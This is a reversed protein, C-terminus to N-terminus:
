SPLRWRRPDILDVDDSALSRTDVEAPLTAQMWSSLLENLEDVSTVGVVVEDVWPRSRVYGLSLGVMPIGLRRVNEVDPHASLPSNTSLLVGQLYVSRAQLVGGRARFEGVVELGDLRQDLINVPAQVIDLTAFAAMAADLDDPGYISVGVSALLGDSRAAELAAVVAGRETVTLRFWDHVLLRDLSDGLVDVTDDILRRIRPEDAGAASIKSQVRFEYPLSAVRQQADGYGEATDVRVIGAQWARHAVDAVVGDDLRGADNTVGYASGWQATGLVLAQM